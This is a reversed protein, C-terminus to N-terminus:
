VHADGDQGLVGARATLYRNPVTQKKKKTRPEPYDKFKPYTASGVGIRPVAVRGCTYAHMLVASRGLQLRFDPM